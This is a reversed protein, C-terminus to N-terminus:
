RWNHSWCEIEQLIKSRNILEAGANSEMSKASGEYNLRCNHDTKSHGKDCKYCKRNKTAFDLVKKSMFGIIAAYGNLSDYSRGNGRKSWGM